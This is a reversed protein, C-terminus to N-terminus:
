IGADAISYLVDLAHRGGRRYGLSKLLHLERLPEFRNLPLDWEVILDRQESRKETLAGQRRRPRTPLTIQISNAICVEAYIWPSQTRVVTERLAISKPTNLFILCEANDIVAGLAAGLMM